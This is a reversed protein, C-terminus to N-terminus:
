AKILRSEFMDCILDHYEERKVQHLYMPYPTEPTGPHLYAIVMKSVRAKYLDELIKTYVCTQISAINAKIRLIGRSAPRSGVATCDENHEYANTAGWAHCSCFPLKLPDKNMKYDVVMLVLEDPFRMDRLALDIMGPLRAEKSFIPWETRYFEWYPELTQLFAMFHAWGPLEEYSRYQPYKPNFEFPQKNAYNEFHRHHMVGFEVTEANERKWKAQLELDGNSARDANFNDAFYEKYLTTVSCNRYTEGNIIYFHDRFPGDRGQRIPDCFKIRIDREHPHLKALM